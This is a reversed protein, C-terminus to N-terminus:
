TCNYDWGLWALRRRRLAVDETGCEAIACACVRSPSLVTECFAHLSNRMQLQQVPYKQLAFGTRLRGRICREYSM